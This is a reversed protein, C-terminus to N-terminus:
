VMSVLGDSDLLDNARTAFVERGEREDVAHWLQIAWRSVRSESLSGDGKLRREMEVAREMMGTCVLWGDIGSAKGDKMDTKPPLNGLWGSFSSWRTAM